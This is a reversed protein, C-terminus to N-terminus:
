VGVQGQQLAQMVKEKPGDALIRGEEVVILREVLELMQAKHTVLVLTRDRTHDFIRKRIVSETTNDMSNTPEDLIIVPSDLLVTRAISVAQRQGGSLGVGQENLPTDFGMPMRNIFLDVGGVSSAKLLTEDDIHPEKYLINERITGRLLEVEQSQFAIQKRLEVPDIQSIDIGDISISGETPRYLGLLLKVLTSKGSGVRGIIGIHEGPNIKLNIGSLTEKESEPYAFGVNEMAIAGEFVPSQVFRKGQPREVGKHMLEDINDYATKTQQYSTILGAIQAMPGVTRGSLITTAILGGLSLELDSILYIGFVIIGITTMQVLLNTVVTISNSLLRSRLSKNAIEGTAEEWEWQAHHSSGLTKITTINHLNEILLANKNATAESTSQISEKLPKILAFSFLILLTITIVPVIVLPGAIYSIVILFIISFPLDILAVMTSATFFNRITEFERLTNAFSGISKPWQEMRLNLTQEFIISSMIIDSKKGAIELFYTRIFRLITDFLYAISIGIALVWLTEIANNPVVRDYVNMTFMPTALVFLNIMLSAVIVSYYIEKSRWLTGFFWHGQDKDILNLPRNKYRYEKKLLFAFGLYEEMLDNVPVWEQAEGVETFVVKALGKRRDISDLICARKDKLVLICPLLLDSIETLDKEILKSVFGARKAVRSFLSKSKNISFMEPSAQHPEVPLGAILTDISVPRYYLKAFVVIAELLPDYKKKTSSM